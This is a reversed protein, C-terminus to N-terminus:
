CHASQKIRNEMFFCKMPKVRKDIKTCVYISMHVPVNPTHQTITLESIAVFNEQTVTM